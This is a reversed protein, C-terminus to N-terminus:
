PRLAEAVTQVHPITPGYVCRPVGVIRVSPPLERADASTSALRAPDSLDYLYGFASSRTKYRQGLGGAGPRKSPPGHIASGRVGISDLYALLVPLEVGNPIEFASLFWLRDRGRYRDIERLYDRLEPHCNGIDVSELPVGQRSGYFRLVQWSPYFVYVADGPRREEAVEALVPRADDLRWVPPNIALAVAPELVVAVPPLAALSRPRMMSGLRCAGEAVLLLLLPVLFLALRTRLPFTHAIAAAVTVGVPSLLVLAPGRCRRHLSILGVLALVLYATPFPYDLLLDFVDRIATLPWLVGTASQIPWPMFGARWFSSMYAALGPGMRAKAYAVSLAAVASWLVVTPVLTRRHAVPSAILLAAGLGALVLVAPQSFWVLLAGALTLWLLRRRVPRELWALALDTLIITVLVDGAYQKAEAAYVALTASLSFLAVAVVAGVPYLVRCALRMFLPLTALSCLLPVLRLSYESSGFTVVAARSLILFGPPAIQGDALPASLLSGVDRTLLNNAVALEDLWLAPNGFYQWLRLAGGAALLVVMVRAPALWRRVGETGAVM